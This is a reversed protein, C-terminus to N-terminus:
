LAAKPLMAHIGKHQNVIQSIRLDCTISCLAYAQERSLNRRDCILDIMARLAQKAANDLDPDIGFTMFHTPTEAMPMALTGMDKRVTLRFHGTLNTEIATVNVEGDGQLAHGDGTSFLAGPQFVPLYLTAGAGIEKCDLNGGMARPIISTVMGWESPPAVGM